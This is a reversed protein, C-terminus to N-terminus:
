DDVFNDQSLNDQELMRFKFFDKPLGMRHITNGQMYILFPFKRAQRESPAPFVVVM